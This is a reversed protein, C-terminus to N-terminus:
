GGGAQSRHKLLRLAQRIAAAQAPTLDEFYTVSAADAHQEPLHAALGDPLLAALAIAASAVQPDDPRLHALADLLAYLESTGTRMDDLVTMLASRQDAPVVTELYLLHERDRVASPSDTPTSLGALLSTLEPSVPGESPLGGARAQALLGALRARRERLAAEQRALDDDLEALVDALARGADDAVIRRVEDLALGLETLRRVRALLVADALGYERYGNARRVPEPLLGLQHYHRIARTTIGVLTALEGIRM